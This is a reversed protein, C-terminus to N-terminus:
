GSKLAQSLLLLDRWVLRKQLPQKMLYSPPLTVLAKIHRDQINRDQCLYDFWQGRIKNVNDRQQLLAQAPLGGLCILFDPRALDIQRMIFPLCSAIEQSTPARNGPPRWPVINALYVSARDLGISALMRDLLLGTKGAFPMGERDEDANPADGIIMVRSGSVGAEFVLQTATKKLSCGEYDQLARKLEFLNSAQSARQRADHIAADPTLLGTQNSSHAPPVLKVAPKIPHPESTIQVVPQSVAQVQEFRDQAIEDVALDVGSAVYWDLLAAIAQKDTMDDRNLNEQDM